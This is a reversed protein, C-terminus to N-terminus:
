ALNVFSGIIIRNLLRALYDFDAGEVSPQNFNQIVVENIAGVMAQSVIVIDKESVTQPLEGRVTQYVLDALQRYVARRVEEVEQSIGVSEVLILNAVKPDTFCIEVYRRIGAYAKYTLREEQQFAEKVEEIIEVALEEFLRVILDEKSSFNQYFTTKSVRAMEVIHLVSTNKFGETTFLQLGAFFIKERAEKPMETAFLMQM